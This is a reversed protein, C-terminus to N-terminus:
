SNPTNDIPGGASVVSRYVISIITQCNKVEGRPVEGDENTCVAFLLFHFCSLLM